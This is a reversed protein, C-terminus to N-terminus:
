RGRWVPARKERFARVGEQADASRLAAVLEPTRTGQIRRAQGIREALAMRKVARLSLPACALIDAVWRDVVEDLEEAPVVENVLGFRLADAASVRRGTLLIEMAQRYPVQQLVGAVGGDLPVRGVRPEPLGFFVTSAAVVLDCGLALEMGGGLCFGNVRAVVPVTLTDRMSLGGFGNGSAGAWYDVGSLGNDERLDAGACFARDGSGTLVVVRIGPTAEIETWVRELETAAASDLANRAAPRDITVRAVGDRVELIIGASM